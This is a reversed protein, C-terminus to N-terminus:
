RVQKERSAAFVSQLEALISLAISEPSDAGIDIGVPGKLKPRLAEGQDGLDQLLRARRAPPGLVGVYRPAVAALQELYSRDTVLHHSMVLIADFSDLDIQESLARPDITLVREARAFGGRAIYAPRHDAVTVFWGLDAAMSVVPIADLGAGLVLVRPVPQLPAYLVYVGAESPVFRARGVEFAQSCGREIVSSLPHAADLQPSRWTVGRHPQWILTAGETLDDRESSIVTAVAAEDTAVLRRAISAFPEYGTEHGLPQLFIRILGNCGVGLGWLDDADDRMDYTVASPEV